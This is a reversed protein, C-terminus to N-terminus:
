HKSNDADVVALARGEGDSLGAAKAERLVDPGCKVLQIGRPSGTVTESLIRRAESVATAIVLCSVQSSGKPASADPRDWTFRFGTYASQSMARDAM